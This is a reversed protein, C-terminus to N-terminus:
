VLWWFHGEGHPPSCFGALLALQASGKEEKM